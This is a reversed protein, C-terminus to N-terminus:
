GVFEWYNEPTLMKFASEPYASSCTLPMRGKKVPKWKSEYCNLFIIM